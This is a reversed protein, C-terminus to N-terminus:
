EEEEEAGGGGLSVADYLDYYLACRGDIVGTDVVRLAERGAGDEGPVVGDGFIGVAPFAGWGPGRSPERAFDGFATQVVKSLERQFATANERRFNGFVVGLESAHYAGAGEFFETNPFSANYLFRWTPMGIGRTDNAWVQAPCQMLFETAIRNIRASETLLGPEGLPYSNIILDTYEAPIGAAALAAETTTNEPLSQISVSAEDYTTGILVPVELTKRALRDLRPTNSFTVGNDKFGPYSLSANNALSVLTQAPLNKLCPLTNTTNPPCGAAQALAAWASPYASPDDIASPISIQSSTLIAARFQPPGAPPATLLTDITSAGASEGMLTIKSPDGGLAAINRVVWKLALRTDHLALNREEVPVSTDGVFGFVNTRYNIGVLVIDQNAVFSSGDYLPLSGAGNRWSGGHIWVIVPKSGASAHAPTYVNLNLCDESHGAPAVGLNAGEYYIETSKSIQEYCAPGYHSADLPETWPAIHVPLEFRQPEEAYPIGLYKNVTVTASPVAVETTTGVIAGSDIIATPKPHTPKCATAAAAAAAAFPLLVLM